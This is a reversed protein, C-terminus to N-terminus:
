PELAKLLSSKSNVGLKQYIAHLQNRVTAPSVGLQRAAEKYTGFEVIKEVVRLEAATLKRGPERGQVGIMLLGGQRRLALIVHRGVYRQGSDAALGALIEPPLQHSLWDPYERRLLLIASDDLHHIWGNPEAVIFGAQSAGATLPSAALKRNISIAQLAHPVLLDAMALDAATFVDRARARWLSFSSISKGSQRTIFAFANLSQTRRAYERVGDDDVALSSLAHARGPGAMAQRLLPDRTSFGGDVTFSEAGMLEARIAAKDPVVNFVSHGTMVTRGQENVHLLLLGGSDFAVRERMGRMMADAFEPVPAAQADRYLDLIFHSLRQDM